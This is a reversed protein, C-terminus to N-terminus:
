IEKDEKRILKSVYYHKNSIHVRLAGESAHFSSKNCHICRWEGDGENTRVRKGKGM